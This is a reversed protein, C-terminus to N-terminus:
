WLSHFEELMSGEIKCESLSMCAGRKLEDYSVTSHHIKLLNLGCPNGKGRYEICEIADLSLKPCHLKECLKNLLSSSWQWEPTREHLVHFSISKLM